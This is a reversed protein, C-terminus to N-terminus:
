KAAKQWYVVVAFEGRHGWCWPEAPGAGGPGQTLCFGMRRGALEETEERGGITRLEGRRYIGKEGFLLSVGSLCM